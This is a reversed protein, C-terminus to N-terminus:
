AAEEKQCAPQERKTTRNPTRISATLREGTEPDFREAFLQEATLGLKAAIARELHVSLPRRIAHTIASASVGEDQALRFAGSGVIRLRYIIWHGRMKPDKPIDEILSKVTM